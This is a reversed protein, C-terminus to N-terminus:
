YRHYSPCYCLVSEPIQLIVPLLLPCERIYRVTVSSVRQFRHDSPCYCLVSELIQSIVSLLRPCVRTDTIHRVSVSFVRTDTIHRVTVSSVSQYRHYSPCYCLVNEPIQSIVSLLLPCKRFILSFIQDLSGNSM